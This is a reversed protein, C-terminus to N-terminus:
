KLREGLSRLREATFVAMQTSSGFQSAELEQVAYGELSPPESQASHVGPRPAFEKPTRPRTSSRKKKRWFLGFM